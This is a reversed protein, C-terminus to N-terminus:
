KILEIAGKYVENNSEITVIYYYTGASVEKGTDRFTGNWQNAEYDTQREYVVTGWRNIIEVTASPFRSIGDIVWLDNYGDQNPTFSTYITLEKEVYVIVQASDMCGEDTSVVVKFTTTVDPSATVTSTNSIDLGVSPSWEFVSGLTSILTIDESTGPIITVESDLQIDPLPNVRVLISDTNSPCGTSDTATMSLIYDESPSIDVSQASEDVVLDTTANWDLAYSGAGGTIAYNFTLTEDRCVSIDNGLDVIIPNAEAIQFVVSDSCGAGDIAIAVINGELMNNTPSNGFTAGNDFSYSIAGAAGTTFTLTASGNGSFFCTVASTSLTDLVVASAQGVFFSVSDICSNMDRVFVKNSGANLGTITSSAAFTIGDTSYQYTPTGGTGAFVASGDSGGFCTTENIPSPTPLDLMVPQDITVYITTDGVGADTIQVSYTGSPVDTLVSDNTGVITMGSNRWTYILAPTGGNAEVIAGGNTGGFCSVDMSDIMRANISPSPGVAAPVFFSINDVCLPPDMAGALTSANIWNFKLEINAKNDFANSVALATLTDSFWTNQNGGSYNGGIPGPMDIWTGGNIRYAVNGYDINDQGDCMWDFSLHVNTQGTTVFSKSIAESNSSDNSLYVPEGASGIHLYNNGNNPDPTLNVGFAAYTYDNNIWFSNTQGITGLAWSGNTGSDFDEFDIVIQSFGSLPLTWVALILLTKYRM